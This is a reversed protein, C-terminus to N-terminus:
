LHSRAAAIPPLRDLNSVGSPGPTSWPWSADGDYCRRPDRTLQLLVCKLKARAKGTSAGQDRSSRWVLEQRRVVLEHGVLEGVKGLGGRGGDEKRPLKPRKPRRIARILWVLLDMEVEEAKRNGVQWWHAGNKSDLDDIVEPMDFIQGIDGHRSWVQGLSKRSVTLNVGHQVNSQSARIIRQLVDGSL